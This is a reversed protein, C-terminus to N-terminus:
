LLDLPDVDVVWQVGEISELGDIVSRVTQRLADGDPSSLLVHYRFM